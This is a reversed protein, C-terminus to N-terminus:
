APRSTLRSRNRDRDPDGVLAAFSDWYLTDRVEVAVNPFRHLEELDLGAGDYHVAMVRGSEAGLDVALVTKRKM